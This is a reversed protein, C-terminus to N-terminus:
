TSPPHAVVAHPGGYSRADRYVDWCDVDDRGSYIGTREVFLAAIM